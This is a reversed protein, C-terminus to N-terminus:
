IGSADRADRDAQWRRVRTWCSSRDNQLKTSPAEKPNPAQSKSSQLIGLGAAARSCWAFRRSRLSRRRLGLRKRASESRSPEHDRHASFMAHFSGPVEAHQRCRPPLLLKARGIRGGYCSRSCLTSSIDAADKNPCVNEKRLTEPRGDQVRSWFLVADFGNRPRSFSTGQGCDFNILM